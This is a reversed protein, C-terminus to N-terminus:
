AAVMIVNADCRSGKSSNDTAVETAVMPTQQPQKQEAAKKSRSRRWKTARLRQLNGWVPELIRPM